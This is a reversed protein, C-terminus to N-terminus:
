MHALADCVWVPAGLVEDFLDQAVEGDTVVVVGGVGLLPVLQRAPPLNLAQAVEVGRARVGAAVDALVGAAGGVVQRRVETLDSNTPPLLQRDEAAVVVCHVARAHAVVDVHQVERLTM